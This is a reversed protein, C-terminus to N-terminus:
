SAYPYYEVLVDAVGTTAATGTQTFKVVVPTDVTVNGRGAGTGSKYGATGAANDTSTAFLAATAATGVELVNTTAANFAVEVNVFPSKVFSGAPITGIEVGTAINGTNFAVRGRVCHTTNSTFKRPPASM